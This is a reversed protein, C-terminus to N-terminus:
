PLTPPDAAAKRELRGLPIYAIFIMTIFCALGGVVNSVPEALFVGTTGLNWLRPLIVTLPAVIVAKRLLSFFIATKAKGLAQSVTQGSMQFTMFFFTAYYIRFAPVGSSILAPDSNFIRIFVAPFLEIFAWPVAAAIMGATTSFRIGRRIRGYQGAGYNFSLVPVSGTVIGMLGVTAVERIANIATMVSVYLNGGYAMLTKNCVIQVLSNTLFMIFGSVGLALIRGVTKARLVFDKFHLTLIAKRGTLFCLVWVASGTQALVSALAAGQVGMGLAFIFVPDLVINVLAGVAVTMMGTRGFGQMNIFPNMGFSIMVMVTGLLYISMYADAYGITEGDAGFLYLLPRKFILCLATLAAGLLILMFFANGMIHEAERLDGRGRAMSSLPAGGTGCLSAFGMLITIIPLAIGMGTFALRGDPIHGIYMRDVINYAINILQAIAMPVALKIIAKSVSGKSFDNKQEPPQPQQSPPQQHPAQQKRRINM